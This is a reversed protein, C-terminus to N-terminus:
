AAIRPLLSFHLHGPRHGGEAVLRRWKSESFRQHLLDGIGAVDVVLLLVTAQKPLQGAPCSASVVPRSAGAM